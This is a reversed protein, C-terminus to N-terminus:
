PRDPPLAFNGSPTPTTKEDGGLLTVAAVSGAVVAGGVYYYWPIGESEVIADAIVEFYFDDGDFMNMEDDTINWIVTNKKGAFDGEGIDGTIDSPAYSFSTESTRRLLLSVDYQSGTTENLTYYIFIKGNIEEFSVDVKEQTFSKGNLFFLLTLFFFLMNIIKM